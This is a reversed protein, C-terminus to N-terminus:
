RGRSRALNVLDRVLAAAAGRPDSRGGTVTIRDMADTRISIGKELGAVSALPHDAALPTPEVRARWRAGDPRLTGLLRVTRGAAHARALDAPDLEAIGAVDVDGLTLDAGLGANAIIVLKCATDTGSVDVWPDAEAAGAARAERLAEAFTAGTAAMRSLILNSTGNLVGDIALITTGALGVEILDLGPLAAGAAAGVRVATGREAARDRISAWHHVFAGKSAAVVDMGRDIARLVHTASPEGSLIGGSSAEVLADADVEGIAREASWAEMRGPLSALPQAALADRSPEAGDGRLWTGHRTAIGVLVAETGPPDLGRRRREAIQIAFARGVNGFGVLLLRV